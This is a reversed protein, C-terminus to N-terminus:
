NLEGKMLIVNRAVQSLKLNSAMAMSRLKQYAQDETIGHASMVVGKAKDILKRDSLAQQTDRLKAKLQQDEEFRAIALSFVPKIREPSFGDVVLAAVGAGIAARTTRDSSRNAFVIIPCPRVRSLAKLQDTLFDDLLDVSIVILDPYAAMNIAVMDDGHNMRAIISYGAQEIAVSIRVSDRRDDDIQLVRKKM